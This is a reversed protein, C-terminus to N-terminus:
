ELGLWMEFGADEVVVVDEVALTDDDDEAWPDYDLGNNDINVSM